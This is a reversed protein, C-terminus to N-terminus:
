AVFKVMTFRYHNQFHTKHSFLQQCVFQARASFDFCVRACVKNTRSVMEFNLSIYSERVLFMSPVQFFVLTLAHCRMFNALMNLLVASPNRMHDSPIRVRGHDGFFRIHPFM